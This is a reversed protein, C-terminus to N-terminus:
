VDSELRTRLQDVADRGGILTLTDGVALKTQGDPIMVDGHHKVLAVLCDVPLDLDRLARGAFHENGVQVEVIRDPNTGGGLGLLPLTTPRTVLGALTLVAADALTITEIGGEAFASANKADNVRAILRPGAGYGKATQCILLNAKDSPSAAVLAQCWGIGAQYLMGPETADGHLAQLGQAQAERVNTLDSDLLTVAEGEESLRTALKRAIEDGGVILIKKPMVNLRNAVWGAMGGEILVTLIVTLLVLPGIAEGGQVNWAALEITMLSAMSAAVIGRPGMWAIFARERLTLRTGWTSLAVAIPRIVAMLLLVVAVGQWGLAVLAGLDMGAALLVFVLSLAILTLDGKFQKVTEEHPLKLSGAILGAIAVAAIGSEHACAEAVGYTLLSTALVSLRVIEPPLTAARALGVKLAIAATAGVAAGIALHSVLQSLGAAVGDASGTIYSFVSATLLVGVADVLVSEAELITKLRHPLPLRRLIPAIVTPGTVSVIAGYLAAVKLPLDLILHAAAAALVFTTGAGVTILMLVSRTAHRLHNLDISLGGEFVIIAVALAVIARGGQGYIAPDILALGGPGLALGAGLLFIIAPLGTRRAFLQALVGAMLVVATTLVIALAPHHQLLDAIM